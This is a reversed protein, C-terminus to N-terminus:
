RDRAELMQAYESALVEPERTQQPADTLWPLIMITVRRNRARGEATRNSAVPAFEGYGMAVMREPDVGNEAFLHVVSAARGSSLEWNSPFVASNIPVNDTHGEVQIRASRGALMDAVQRLVPLAADALTASGSPFLLKTNIELELWYAERNVKILDDRILGELSTEMEDALEAIALQLAEQDSRSPTDLPPRAASRTPTRHPNTPAIEGPPLDALGFDISLPALSHPVGQDIGHLDIGPDGIQIPALSRSHGFAEVMSSSLAHFKNADVASIAYMVVFFALLLTLLDAYPIAWAEHNRDDSHRRRDIM